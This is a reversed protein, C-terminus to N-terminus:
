REGGGGSRQPHPRNAAPPRAHTGPPLPAHGAGSQTRPSGSGHTSGSGGFGPPCGPPPPVPPPPM